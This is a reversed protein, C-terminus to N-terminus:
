YPRFRKRGGTVYKGV